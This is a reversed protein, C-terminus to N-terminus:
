LIDAIACYQEYSLWKLFGHTKCRLEKYHITNSTQQAIIECEDVCRNLYNLEM